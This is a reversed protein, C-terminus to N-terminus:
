RAREFRDAPPMPEEPQTRQWEVLIEEETPPM